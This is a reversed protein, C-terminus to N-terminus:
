FWNPDVGPTPHLYYIKVRLVRSCKLYLWLRGLQTTKAFRTIAKSMELWLSRVAMMTLYQDIGWNQKTILLIWSFLTTLSIISSFQLTLWPALMSRTRKRNRVISKSSDNSSSHFFNNEVFGCKWSLAVSRERSSLKDTVFM